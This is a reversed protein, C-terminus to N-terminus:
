LKLSVDVVGHVQDKRRIMGQKLPSCDAYNAFIALGCLCALSGFTLYGPALLLCCRFICAYCLSIDQESVRFTLTEFGHCTNKKRFFIRKETNWFDIAPVKGYRTECEKLAPM